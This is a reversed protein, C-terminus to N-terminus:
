RCRARTYLRAAATRILIQRSQRAIAVREEYRQRSRAVERPRQEYDYAEATCLWRHASLLPLFESFPGNPHAAQYSDAFSAEREPCDHYGEWEYCPGLSSVYARALTSADPDASVAALLREYNVRAAYVMERVDGGPPAPMAPRYATARALLADLDDREQGSYAKVDIPRHRGWVLADLLADEPARLGQAGPFSAALLVCVLVTRMVVCWGGTSPPSDSKAVWLGRWLAAGRCGCLM